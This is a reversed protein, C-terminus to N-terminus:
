RILGISLLGNDTEGVGVVAPVRETVIKDELVVAAKFAYFGVDVAIKYTPIPNQSTM